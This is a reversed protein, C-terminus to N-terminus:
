IQTYETVGYDVSLDIPTIDKYTNAKANMEDGTMSKLVKIRDELSGALEAGQRNYGVFGAHYARPVTPFLADYHGAEMLRNILGDQETWMTGFSSQPFTRSLYREMSCYYEIKAHQTVKSLYQPKWSLGLSQFKGFKYVDAPNSGLEGTLMRGDNQNRVASVCFSDYKTQVREHFDFFDKGVFIDEEILYILNGEYKPLLSLAM